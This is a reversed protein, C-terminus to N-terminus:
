GAKRRIEVALADFFAAVEEFAAQEADEPPGFGFGYRDAGGRACYSARHPFHVRDCFCPAYKPAQAKRM